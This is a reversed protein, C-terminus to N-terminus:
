FQFVESHVDFHVRMERSLKMGAKVVDRVMAPPGCVLVAVRKRRTKLAECGMERLIQAVDPRIGYRMCNRFRHEGRAELDPHGRTMYIESYFDGSPDNTARPHLLLQPLYPAVEDMEQGNDGEDVDPNLVSDVIERSRVSWVFRVKPAGERSHYHCEYHLWNAISRLPTVGIGGSFLVFHSYTTVSDIDLAVSGYPGDVLVDIPAMEPDISSALEHLKTTWDGLAKIHFTVMAEHPASSISFPHWQLLSLRPICLFAYQGAEYEFSESTDHRVRPFSIRTINGPMACITLQERSIVGRSHKQHQANANQRKKKKFFGNAYVYPRYVVRFLMDIVWPTLGVLVLPAGHEVAFVVVVLFLVWHLRIFLEFFSRRIYSLSFIYMAVMGTFAVMGTVMQDHHPDSGSDARDLLYALGHLATLMITVFAFLKHYFLVREFPVGTAVLLVSNNRIACLFVIMMTISPASGSGKADHDKAKFATATVLYGVVPIAVILDGLKINFEVTLLPLPVSFFSRALRWRLAIWWRLARQFATPLAPFPARRRRTGIALDTLATARDDVVSTSDRELAYHSSDLMPLNSPLDRQAFPTGFSQPLPEDDDVWSYNSKPTVPEEM